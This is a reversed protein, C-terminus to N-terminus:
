IRWPVDLFENECCIWKLRPFDDNKIPFSVIFGILPDSTHTGFLIDGIGDCSLPEKLSKQTAVPAAEQFVRGGGLIHISIM